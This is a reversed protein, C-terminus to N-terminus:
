WKALKGNRLYAQGHTHMTALWTAKDTRSFDVDATKPRGTITSSGGGANNNERSGSNMRRTRSNGTARLNFDKVVTKIAETMRKQAAQVIFNTARRRDGSAMIAEYRRQHNPDTNVLRQLERNIEKRMRNATGSEVRFVKMSMLHARLQKNMERMVETNVDARVGARFQKAGEERLATRDRDLDERERTFPDAKAKGALGKVQGLFKVLDNYHAIADKVGKAPDEQGLAKGIETIVSFAGFKEFLNSIIHSGVQEFREADLKELTDLMPMVSRRFGDPFDKAWGSIVRPDGKEMGGELENAAELDEQMQSIGDAGGALELTELAATIAPVGGFKTIQDRAYLAGTLDKELRPFKKAFEPDATAISRLAKRLSGPDTPRRSAAERAQREEDTEGEHSEDEGHEGDAGEEHEGGGLEEIHEESGGEGGGGGEIVIAGDDGGFEGDM